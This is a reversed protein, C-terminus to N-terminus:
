SVSIAKNKKNVFLTDANDQRTALYDTLVSVMPVSIATKKIWGGKVQIKMYYRNLAPSARLGNAKGSNRTKKVPNSSYPVLYVNDLKIGAVERPRFGITALLSIITFECPNRHKAAYKLLKKM